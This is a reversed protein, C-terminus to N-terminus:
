GNDYSFIDPPLDYFAILLDAVTRSCEATKMLSVLKCIGCQLCWHAMIGPLHSSSATKHKTCQEWQVAGRKADMKYNPVARFVQSGGLKSPTYEAPGKGTWVGMRFFAEDESRWTLPDSECLEGQLVTAAHPCETNICTPQRAWTVAISYLVSAKRSNSIDDGEKLIVGYRTMVIAMM